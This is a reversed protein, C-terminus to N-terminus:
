WTDPESMRPLAAVWRSASCPAAILVRALYGAMDGRRGLSGVVNDTRFQVARRHETANDLTHPRTVTRRDFVLHHTEGLAHLVLDEDLGLALM